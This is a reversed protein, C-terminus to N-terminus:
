RIPSNKNISLIWALILFIGSVAFPLGIIYWAPFSLHNFVIYLISVSACLLFLGAPLDRYWALGLGILVILLFILYKYLEFDIQSFNGGFFTFYTLWSIFFITAIVTFIRGTRRIYKAIRYNDLNGM